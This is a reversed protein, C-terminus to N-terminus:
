PKTPHEKEKEKEKKFRIINNSDPDGIITILGYPPQPGTFATPFIKADTGSFRLGWCRKLDPGHGYSTGVTSLRWRGVTSIFSNFQTRAETPLARWDPYNTISFTGDTLIDLQCQRGQLASVGGNIITQDSLVYSGVVDTQQPEEGVYERHQNQAATVVDEDNSVAQDCGGSLAAAIVLVGVVIKSQMKMMIRSKSQKGTGALIPNKYVFM